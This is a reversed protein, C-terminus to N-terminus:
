RRTPTASTTPKVDDPVRRAGARVTRASRQAATRRERSAAPTKHGWNKYDHDRWPGGDDNPIVLSEATADPMAARHAVHDRRLSPLAELSRTRNRRDQKLEARGAAAAM